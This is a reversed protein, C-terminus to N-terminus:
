FEFPNRSPKYSIFVQKDPTAYDRIKGPICLIQPREWRGGSLCRILPNLRQQFGEACHYRVVASTEYRQRAKGFISANRVKPPPGCSATPLLYTLSFNSMRSTVVWFRWMLASFVNILLKLHRTVWLHREQVHIRPSLQLPRWELTRWWAVGDSRLRWWVPLLQRTTRQVLKWVATLM